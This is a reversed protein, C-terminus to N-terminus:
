RTERAEVLDVEATIDKQHLRAWQCM